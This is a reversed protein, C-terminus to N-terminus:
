GRVQAGLTSTNNTGHAQLSYFFGKISFAMTVPGKLIFRHMYIMSPRKHALLAHSEKDCSYVTSYLFLSFHGLKMSDRTELIIKSFNNDQGHECKRKMALRCTQLLSPNSFTWGGDVPRCFQCSWIICLWKYSPGPDGLLFSTQTM